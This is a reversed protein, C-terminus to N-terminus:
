LHRFCKTESLWFVATRLINKLIYISTRLMKATNVPLVMHEFRKKIFNSAQLGAVKHFPYELM